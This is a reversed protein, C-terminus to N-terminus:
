LWRWKYFWYLMAIPVGICAASEAYFLTRSDFPLASFNQGFFSTIFTSPLFIASLITLQKMVVNLSNSVTSMYADMANGLLDREIDIQEYARILHDYIDRFFPAAKESVPNQSRRLLFTVVDREGALVRRVAVMSRKLKLLKGLESGDRRGLIQGEIKSLSDSLQDIVEFSGDVLSDLLLYLVHDVGYDGRRSDAVVRKWVGEVAAVPRPQITVLFNDGAFLSLEEFQVASGPGIRIEYLVAFWYQEYDDIKARQSRHLCDEIALPHFSFRQELQALDQETPNSLDIWVAQREGSASVAAPGALAAAGTEIEPETGSQLKLSRFTSGNKM